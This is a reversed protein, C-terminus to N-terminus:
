APGGSERNTRLPVLATAKVELLMGPAALATVGVATMPFAGPPLMRNKVARFAEWHLPMDVHFTTLDVIDAFGCGAAALVTRLNEFCQVFQEQPDEVIRLDPTRGVQGAVFLLREVRLAPAYGKQAVLERMSDPVIIERDL